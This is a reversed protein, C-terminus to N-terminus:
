NCGYNVDSASMETVIVSVQPGQGLCDVYNPAINQVIANRLVNQLQPAYVNRFWNPDNQQTRRKDFNDVACYRCTGGGKYIFGIAGLRRRGATPSNCVRALFAANDGKGQDGIGYALLLANINQGLQNKRETTCQGTNFGGQPTLTISLSFYSIPGGGSPCPVPYVQLLREPTSDSEFSVIAGEKDHADVLSTATVADWHRSILALFILVRLMM